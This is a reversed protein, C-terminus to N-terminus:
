QCPRLWLGHPLKTSDDGCAGELDAQTVRTGLLDAGSLRAGQLLPARRANALVFILALGLVIAVAFGGRLAAVTRGSKTMESDRLQLGPNDEELKRRRAYMRGLFAKQSELAVLAFTAVAISALLFCVVAERQAADPVSTWGIAAGAGALAAAVVTFYGTASQFQLTEWHRANANIEKWQEVVDTLIAM